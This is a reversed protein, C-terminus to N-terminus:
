GLFLIREIRRGNKVQGGSTQQDSEPLEKLKDIIMEGTIKSM